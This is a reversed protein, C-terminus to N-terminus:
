PWTYNYLKSTQQRNFIFTRYSGFALAVMVRALIPPTYYYLCFFWFLVSHMMTGMVARWKVNSLCAAM